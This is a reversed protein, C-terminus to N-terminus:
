AILTEEDVMEISLDLPQQLLENKASEAVTPTNDGNTEATTIAEKRTETGNTTIFAGLQIKKPRPNNYFPGISVHGPWFSPDFLQKHLESTCSVRFSVFSLKDLQQEKKVLMYVSFHEESVDPICEKVYDILEDTTVSPELKSVFIHETLKPRQNANRKAADESLAGNAPKMTVAKGLGTKNSKGTMLQRNQVATKIEESMYKTITNNMQRSQTAMSRAAAAFSNVPSQEHNSKRKKTPQRDFSPFDNEHLNPATPAMQFTKTTKNHNNM